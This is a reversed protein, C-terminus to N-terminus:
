RSLAPSKPTYRFTLAKDKGGNPNLYVRGQYRPQVSSTLGEVHMCSGDKRYHRKSGFCVVDFRGTRRNRKDHRELLLILSRGKGDRGTLIAM